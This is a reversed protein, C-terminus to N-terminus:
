RGGGKRREIEREVVVVKEIQDLGKRWARGLAGDGIMGGEEADV